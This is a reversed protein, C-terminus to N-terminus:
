RPACGRPRKSHRCRSTGVARATTLAGTAKRAPTARTTSAGNTTRAAATTVKPGGAARTSAANTSSATARALVLARNPNTVAAVAEAVARDSDGHGATRPRGWLSLWGSGVSMCGIVFGALAGIVPIANILFALGVAVGLALWRDDVIARGVALYGLQGLYALGRSFGHVKLTSEREPRIMPLLSM